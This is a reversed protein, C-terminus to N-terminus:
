WSSYTHRSCLNSCLFPLHAPCYRRGRCVTLTTNKEATRNQLSTLPPNTRSLSSAGHKASQLMTPWVKENM